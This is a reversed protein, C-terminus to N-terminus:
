FKYGITIIGASAKPKYSVIYGDGYDFSKQKFDVIQGEVQVFLNKDIFSKIGVGYGVGNYKESTFNAAYDGTISGKMQHYGLKAFIATSNNLLYQPQVYVSYHNKGELGITEGYAGLEGSKTKSLDYTVGVGVLFKADVAKTYSLDISPVVTDKGLTFGAGENDSVKTNTGVASIGFGVSVGEFSSAQAFATTASMALSLALLKKKM